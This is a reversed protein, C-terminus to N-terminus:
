PKDELKYVKVEGSLARLEEPTMSDSPFRVAGGGYPGPRYGSEEDYRDQLIGMGAARGSNALQTKLRENIHGKM